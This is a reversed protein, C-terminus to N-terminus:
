GRMGEMTRQSHCSIIVSLEKTGDYFSIEDIFEADARLTEKEQVVNDFSM